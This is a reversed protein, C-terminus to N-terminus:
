QNIILGPSGQIVPHDADVPDPQVDDFEDDFVLFPWTMVLYGSSWIVWNM